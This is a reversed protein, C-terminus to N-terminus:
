AISDGFVYAQKDESLKAIDIAHVENKKIYKLADGIRIEGDDERIDRAFIKNDTISKHTTARERPERQM